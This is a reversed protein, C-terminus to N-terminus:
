NFINFAVSLTLSAMVPLLLFHNSSVVHNGAHSKQELDFQCSAPEGHQFGEVAGQEDYNWLVWCGSLYLQNHM